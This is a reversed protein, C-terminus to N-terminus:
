RQVENKGLLLLAHKLSVIQRRLGYFASNALKLVAAVLAVDGQLVSELDGASTEPDAVLTM